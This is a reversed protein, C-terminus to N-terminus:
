SKIATLAHHEDLTVGGWSDVCPRQDVAGVLYKAPVRGNQFYVYAKGEAHFYIPIQRNGTERGTKGCRSGPDEIPVPPVFLSLRMDPPTRNLCDLDRACRGRPTRM